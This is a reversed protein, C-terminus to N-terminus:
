SSFGVYVGDGVDAAVEVGLEEGGDVDVFMLMLMLMLSTKEEARSGHHRPLFLLRDQGRFRSM